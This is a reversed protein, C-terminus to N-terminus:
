PDEETSWNGFPWRDDRPTRAAAAEIAELDSDVFPWCEGHHPFRREHDRACVTCPKSWYGNFDLTGSGFTLGDHIGSSVSCYPNGCPRIRKTSV